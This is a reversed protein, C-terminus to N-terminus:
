APTEVSRGLLTDIGLIRSLGTTYGITGLATAGLAIKAWMPMKGLAKVPIGLTRLFGSRKGRSAKKSKRAM